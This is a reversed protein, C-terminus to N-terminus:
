HGVQTGVGKSARISVIGDRERVECAHVHPASPLLPQLVRLLHTGTCEQTRAQHTQAAQEAQMRRERARMYTPTSLKGRQSWGCGRSM